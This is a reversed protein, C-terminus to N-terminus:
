VCIELNTMDKIIMIPLRHLFSYKSCAANTKPLINSLCNNNEQQAPTYCADEM